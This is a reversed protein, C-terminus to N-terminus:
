REDYIAKDQTHQIHNHFIWSEVTVQFGKLVIELDLTKKKNNKKQKVLDGSEWTTLMIEEDEPTHLEELTLSQGKPCHECEGYLCLSTLPDCLFASNMEGTNFTSGTVNEVAAIFLYYNACRVCVCVEQHSICKVM